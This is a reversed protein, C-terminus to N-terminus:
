FYIGLDEKLSKITNDKETELENYKLEFKSKIYESEQCKYEYKLKLKDLEEVADKLNFNLNNNTEKLEVLNTELKIRIKKYEAQIDDIQKEHVRKILELSQYSKSNSTSKLTKFLSEYM